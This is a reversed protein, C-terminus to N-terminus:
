RCVIHGRSQLESTHEESRALLHSREDDPHAGTNMFSVVTELPKVTTWLEPDHDAVDSAGVKSENIPMFLLSSIAAVSIAQKLRKRVNNGGKYQIYCSLFSFEEIIFLSMM